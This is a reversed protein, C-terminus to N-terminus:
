YGFRREYDKHKLWELIISIIRIEDQTITYLLRWNKGLNYKWLNNINYKEIYVKPFLRKEIKTGAEPNESLIRITKSIRKYLEQEKGTGQKIRKFSEKLAKHAFRVEKQKM